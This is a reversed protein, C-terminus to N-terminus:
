YYSRYCLASYSTALIERSKKDATSKIKQEAENVKLAIEYQLEDEIKKM